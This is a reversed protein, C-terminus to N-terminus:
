GCADLIRGEARSMLIYRVGVPNDDSSDWAFVEPVPITTREKLLRLTAVESELKLKVIDPFEEFVQPRSCKAIWEVGDDFRIPVTFSFAGSGSANPSLICSRLASRAAFAADLLAQFSFNPPAGRIVVPSSKETM